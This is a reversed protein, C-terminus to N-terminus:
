GWGKEWPSFPSVRSGWVIRWFGALFSQRVSYEAQEHWFFSCFVALIKVSEKQM